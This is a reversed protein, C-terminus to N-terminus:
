KQQFLNEQLYRWAVTFVLGQLGNAIIRTSLGRGFLGAYGDAAIVHRAADMYSIPTAFTQRTTKLVRASNSVTDSTVSSVFGILASRLFGGLTPSVGVMEGFEAKKPLKENLLNYVAFWPYHGMFTAGVAGLAGHYLTFPGHASIKNRLLKMGAVGEVQLATKFADLPMLLSRWTAAAASAAVTKALVPMEVDKLLEMIGANAATDGFRSLPGQLLAPAVGRYFRRVGGEKYLKSLTGTFSGGHRYQYNMTTRLWMLAGVQTVM